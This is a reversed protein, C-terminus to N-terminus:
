NSISKVVQTIAAHEFWYRNRRRKFHDPARASFPDSVHTTVFMFDRADAAAAIVDSTQVSSVAMGAGLTKSLLLIDPVVNDREFAFMEGSNGVFNNTISPRV